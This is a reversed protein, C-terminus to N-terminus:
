KTPIPALDLGACHFHIAHIFNLKNWFGRATCKVWQIKANLSENAAIRLRISYARSSTKATDLIKHLRGKPKKKSDKRELLVDTAPVTSIHPIECRRRSKWPDTSLTPLRANAKWAKWWIRWKWLERERFEGTCTQGLSDRVSGRQCATRGSFASATWRPVGIKYRGRGNRPPTECRRTCCSLLPKRTRFRVGSEIIKRLSINLSEVTNTTYIVKRIETPCSFVMYDSGLAPAVQKRQKWNTYNLSARIMHVICTLVEAKPYVSEIVEPFGKLGDVCAIFIVKGGRNQVETLVQLWFKAGENQAAWLGLVEKNGKLNVAIAVHIAKNQIHAGDRAGEGAACGHVPDPVRWGSAPEAV